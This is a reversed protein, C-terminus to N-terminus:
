KVSSPVSTGLSMVIQRLEIQIQAWTIQFSSKGSHMVKECLASETDVLVSFYVPSPIM